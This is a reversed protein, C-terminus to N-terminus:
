KSLSTIVQVLNQHNNAVLYIFVRWPLSLGESFNDMSKICQIIRSRIIQFENNKQNTSLSNDRFLIKILYCYQLVIGQFAEKELDWQKGYDILRTKLLDVNNLQDKSYYFTGSNSSRRYYYLCDKIRLVSKTTKAIPLLQFLDEGHRLGLYQDYNSDFDFIM